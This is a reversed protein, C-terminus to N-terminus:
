APPTVNPLDALGERCHSCHLLAHEAHMWNLCKNGLSHTDLSLAIFAMPPFILRKIHMKPNKLSSNAVYNCEVPHSSSSLLRAKSLQGFVFIDVKGKGM